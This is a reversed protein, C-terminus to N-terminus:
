FGEQLSAGNSSRSDARVTEGKLRYFDLTRRLGEKWRVSVRYGLEREIASIDARSDRIDGVRSPEPVHALPAGTLNALADALELVSVSTGTACDFIRGAIRGEPVVAALLNASVVNDIYTFDRSQKGDGYITIPRSNLVAKCFRAVVGAYESDDDQRPGFVNFYRLTVVPLAYLRHFLQAYQEAAYKQLAYPSLLGPSRAEHKAEAHAEGYVSSSSAFVVRRVAADRAAIFLRLTTDLNRRHSELPAIISQQVSPMAALHFVCDCGKILQKLLVDDGADGQVFELAYGPACWVLNDLRGSSLDDLIIVSDGRRCLAEALHSGIFGAGGTVLAKM